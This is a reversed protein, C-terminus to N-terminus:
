YLRPQLEKGRDRGLQAALASAVLMVAGAALGLRASSLAGAGFLFLPPVAVAAVPVVRALITYSNPLSPM